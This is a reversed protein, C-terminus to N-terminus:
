LLAYSQNQDDKLSVKKRLSEDTWSTLQKTPGAKLILRVQVVFVETEGAKSGEPPAGRTPKLIKVDVDGLVTENSLSPWNAPEAAAEKDQVPKKGAPKKEAKTNGSEAAQAVLTSDKADGPKPTVGADSLVVRWLIVTLAFLTGGGILCLLMMTLKKREGKKMGKLGARVKRRSVSVPTAEINLSDVNMEVHHKRHGGLLLEQPIDAAPPTPAEAATPLRTAKASPPTDPKAAARPLPKTTAQPLSKGQTQAGAGPGEPFLGKIRGAPVWPGEGGRRVLHEPKLQGKAVITKLQQGSLPGVKREGIKCFWDASMERVKGAAVM